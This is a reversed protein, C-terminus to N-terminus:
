QSHHPNTRYHGRVYIGGRMHGGIWTHERGRARPRKSSDGTPRYKNSRPRPRGRRRSNSFAWIHWPM